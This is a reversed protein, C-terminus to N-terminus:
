NFLMFWFAAQSQIPLKFISLNIGCYLFLDERFKEINSKGYDLQYQTLSKNRENAIRKFTQVIDMEQVMEPSIQLFPLGSGM